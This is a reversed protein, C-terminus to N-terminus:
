RDLFRKLKDGWQGKLKDELRRQLYQGGRSRLVEEVDLAVTPADLRGAFRVPIPTDRLDALREGLLGVASEHLRARALYDIRNGPLDITGAGTLGLLASTARLDHNSVVGNRAALTATLESFATQRGLEATKRGLVKALANRVLGDLDIGQVAGDRLALRAAGDLSRMAAVESLGRWRLDADIDATGSLRSRGTTDALLGRLDVGQLAGKLSTAPEGATLDLTGTSRATGGYLKAEAALNVVGAAARWHTRVETLHAGGAKLAAVGLSGDLDLAALADPELVGGAAPAGATPTPGPRDEAPAAIPASPASPPLYRDLDLRDAALDFTLGKAGAVVALRGSVTTEDLTLSLGDIALGAADARFPLSAALRGLVAPDSTRIAPRGLRALLGRPSTATLELRGELVVSEDLHARVEGTLRADAGSIELPAVRLERSALDHRVRARALLDFGEPPLWEATVRAALELRWQRVPDPQGELEVTADGILAWRREGQGDRGLPLVLGRVRLSDLEPRGTLLSAIGVQVRLEAARAAPEDGAAPPGELAVERLVVGISPLLSLEVPQAIRLERGTQEHVIAALRDRVRVPDLLIAVAVAVVLGGAALVGLGGVLWKLPRRM